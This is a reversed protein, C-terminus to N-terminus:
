EVIFWTNQKKNPKKKEESERSVISVLLLNTVIGIISKDIEFADENAGDIERIIAM